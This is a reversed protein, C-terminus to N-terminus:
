LDISCLCYFTFGEGAVCQFGVFQFSIMGRHLCFDSFESLAYVRPRSALVFPAVSRYFHPLLFSFREVERRFRGM